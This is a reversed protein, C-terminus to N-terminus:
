GTARLSTWPIGDSPPREAQRRSVRGLRKRTRRFSPAFPRSSAACYASSMIRTTPKIWKAQSTISEVITDHLFLYDTSAQSISQKLVINNGQFCTSPDPDIFMQHVTSPQIKIVIITAFSIKIFLKM